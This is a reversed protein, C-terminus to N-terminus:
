RLSAPQPFQRLAHYFLAGSLNCWHICQPVEDTVKTAGSHTPPWVGEDYHAQAFPGQRATRAIGSLWHTARDLQGLNLLALLCQAPWAGFAGNFQHDARLGSTAADADLPSLARLWSDTQLETAFFHTMEQQVNHPLLNGICFGVMGFDWCTRVETPHSGDPTLCRFFGSGQIYLHELIADIIAHAEASAAHADTPRQLANYIDALRLLMWAAGANLGAVVHRYTSVCELLEEKPGYDALGLSPVRRARWDFALDEFVALLSAPGNHTQITRALLTNPPAGEQQWLEWAAYFCNFIDITYPWPKGNFDGGKGTLLNIQNFRRVDAALAMELQCWTASPELEALLATALSWDNPYFCAEVRRPSSINYLPKFDRCPFTRRSYLACLIASVAVPAIAEPLDLDTLKAELPGVDSFTSQWLTRWYAEADAFVADLDALLANATTVAAHSDELALAFDISLAEGPQLVRHFLADGSHAWDDPAPALVQANFAHGACALPSDAPANAIPQEQFLRGHNDIPSIIPNLGSHGHLDDVSIQVRPIGWFWPETGRNLCRGSLRLGLHLERATTTSNLVHIRQVLGPKGTAMATRTHIHWGDFDCERSVAWPTWRIATLARTAVLLKGNLILYATSEEASSVPAFVVHRLSTPDGAVQLSGLGNTLGPRSFEDLPAHTSAWQHFWNLDFDSLRM